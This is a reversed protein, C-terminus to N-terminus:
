LFSFFQNIVDNLIVILVARSEPYIISISGLFALVYLIINIIVKLLKGITRVTFKFMNSKEVIKVNEDEVNYKQKLRKQEEQIRKQEKVETVFGGKIKAM